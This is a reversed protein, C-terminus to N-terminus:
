STPSTTRQCASSTSESFATTSSFVQPCCCSMELILIGSTKSFPAVDFSANPVLPEVSHIEEGYSGQLARTVLGQIKPVPAEAPMLVCSSQLERRLKQGSIAQLRIFGFGAPGLGPTCLQPAGPRAVPLVFLHKGVGPLLSSTELFFRARASFKRNRSPSGSRCM